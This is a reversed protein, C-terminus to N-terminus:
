PTSLPEDIYRCQRRRDRGRERPDAAAMAIYNFAFRAAAKM